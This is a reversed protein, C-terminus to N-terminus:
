TRRGWRCRDTPPDADSASAEGTRCMYRGTRLLGQRPPSASEPSAARRDQSAYSSGSSFSHSILIFIVPAQAPAVTVRFCYRTQVPCLPSWKAALDRRHLAHLVDASDAYLAYQASIAPADAAPIHPILSPAARQVPTAGRLLHERGKILSSLIKKCRSQLIRQSRKCPASSAARKPKRNHGGGAIPIPFKTWM